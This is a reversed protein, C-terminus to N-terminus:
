MRSIGKWGAGARGDQEQEEMRSRSKWGARARGNQEQGGKESM